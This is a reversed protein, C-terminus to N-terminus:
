HWERRQLRSSTQWVQYIELTRAPASLSGHGWLSHKQKIDPNYKIQWFDLTIDDDTIFIEENPFSIHLNYIYTLHCVWASGFFIDPELDSDCDANYSHSDEDVMFSSDFVLHDKKGPIMVLAQPNVHLDLILNTMWAPFTLVFEQKDEKNLASKAQAENKSLSRHNKYECYSRHNKYECCKEYNERLGHINYHAPRGFRLIRELDSYTKDDLFDKVRPLIV